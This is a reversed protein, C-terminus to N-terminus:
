ITNTKRKIFFLINWICHVQWNCCSGWGGWSIVQDYISWTPPGYIHCYTGISKQRPSSANIIILFTIFSNFTWMEVIFELIHWNQNSLLIFSCISIYPLWFQFCFYIANTLHCGYFLSALLTFKYHHCKPSHSGQLKSEQAQGVLHVLGTLRETTRHSVSSFPPHCQLWKCYGRYRGDRQRIQKEGRERQRETREETKLKDVLLNLKDVLQHVCTCGEVKAKCQFHHNLSTTSSMPLCFLWGMTSWTAFNWLHLRTNVHGTVYTLERTQHVNDGTNM